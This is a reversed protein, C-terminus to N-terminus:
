QYKNTRLYRQLEREHEVFHEWTSNAIWEYIRTGEKLERKPLSSILSTLRANSQKFWQIVEKTTLRRSYEVVVENFADYLEDNYNISPRINALIELIATFCLEQWAAIHAVMEKVSWNGILGPRIFDKRDLRRLQRNFVTFSTEITEIVEDKTRSRKM